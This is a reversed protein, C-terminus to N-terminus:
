PHRNTYLEVSSILKHITTIASLHGSCHFILFCSFSSIREVCVHQPAMKHNLMHDRFTWNLILWLAQQDNGCVSCVPVVNHQPYFSIILLSDPFRCVSPFFILIRNVCNVKMVLWFTWSKFWGSGTTDMRRRNALKWQNEPAHPHRLLFGSHITWQLAWVCEWLPLTDGILRIHLVTSLFLPLGHLCAVYLVYLSRVPVGSCSYLGLVKTNLRALWHLRGWTDKKSFISSLLISFM